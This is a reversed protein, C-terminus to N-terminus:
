KADAAMIQHENALQKHPQLVSLPHFAAACDALVNKEANVIEKIAEGLEGMMESHLAM